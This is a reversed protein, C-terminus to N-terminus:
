GGCETPVVTQTGKVRKEAGAGAGAGDKRVDWPWRQGWGALGPCPPGQSFPPLWNCYSDIVM